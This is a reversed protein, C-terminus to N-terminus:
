EDLQSLSFAATIDSLDCSAATKTLNRNQLCVCQLGLLYRYQGYHSHGGDGPYVYDEDDDDAYGGGYGGYGSYGYAYNDDDDDGTKRGYDYKRAVDCLLYLSILVYFLCAPLRKSEAGLAFTMAM